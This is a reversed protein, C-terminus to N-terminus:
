LQCASHFYICSKRRQSACKHFIKTNRDGEKLWQQKARQKWRLDEEEMLTDVERKLQYIEANRDGRNTSQLQKIQNRKSQIVHKTSQSTAKSWQTLEESCRKLGQMSEKIRSHQLLTNGWARKIVEECGDRLFWSAEYRFPRSGSARTLNECSLLLLIPAHDSCQAALTSIHCDPFCDFWAQNGLARDLKEKTFSDGERKNSWTFFDGQFPVERLACDEMATRFDEMMRFPRDAAGFKEYSHLIENFDGICIWPLNVSPKIARLLEWSAARRAADPFGYFGTLLYPSQEGEASVKLSIHHQTYTLLEVEVHDKWLFCIGGSLGRSEIVFSHQYGIKNRISEVKNRNCKTEM